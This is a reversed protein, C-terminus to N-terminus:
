EISKNKTEIDNTEARIVIIEKRRSDKPKM